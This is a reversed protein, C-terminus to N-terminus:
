APASRWLMARASIWISGSSRGARLFSPMSRRSARSFSRRLYPRLFARLAGCNELRYAEAPTAAVAVVRAFAAMEGSFEGHLIGNNMTPEGAWLWAESSILPPLFRRRVVEGSAVPAGSTQITEPM